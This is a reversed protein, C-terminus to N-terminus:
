ELDEIKSPGGIKRGEVANNRPIKEEENISPLPNSRNSDELDIHNTGLPIGLSSVMIQASMFMNYNMLAGYVSFLTDVTIEYDYYEKGTDVLLHVGPKFEYGTDIVTPNFTMTIGMPLGSLEKTPVVSETILLEGKSKAFLKKYKASTFWEIVGELTKMFGYFEGTGIRIFLKDKDKPKSSSEISLYYDFGRKVSVRRYSGIAYEYEKYFFYRNGNYSKALNANIKIVLNKGMHTVDDSIKEFRIIEFPEYYNRKDEM